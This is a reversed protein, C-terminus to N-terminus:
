RTTNELVVYSPGDRFWRTQLGTTDGTAEFAVFSGLVLDADGDGDLDGIDFTIWRGLEADPFTFAEFSLDGANRLYVFGKAPPHRYDPYFAVAAIDLDGDEDFDHARARFAGHMPRFYSEEFGNRGDNLFIRIGHYPKAVARYDGNDGNTYLIDFYGDGNFDRLEFSSSGYSPPFRLLREESFRGNGQNRFLYFGEDGQGLLAVVDLDGDADVDLVESGIAGPLPRLVRREYDGPSRQRYWTLQGVLNGFESVVLDERGDADLDARSVHVPRSLGELRRIAGTYDTAGPQRFITRFLGTPNDTPMFLGMLLVDVSDGEIRVHSPASELGITQLLEGQHDFIELTSLDRKVDGLFLRRNRADIKVLSTMPPTTRFEPVRVRFQRLERSPEPRPDQAPLEAPASALYHSVLKEWAPRPIRPTTPFIDAARVLPGASGPELLSDERLSPRSYIGLRHGMKPLVERRWTERDLLAPDPLLHCGECYRRALADGSAAALERELDPSGDAREVRGECAVLLLAVGGLLTARLAAVPPIWRM